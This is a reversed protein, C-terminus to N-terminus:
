LTLTCFLFKGLIIAVFFFANLSFFELLFYLLLCYIFAGKKFYDLLTNTAKQIPARPELVPVFRRHQM